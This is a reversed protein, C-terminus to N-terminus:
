ALGAALKTGRVTHSAATQTALCGRHSLFAKIAKVKRVEGRIPDVELALGELAHLGLVVSNRGKAFVIVTPARRGM